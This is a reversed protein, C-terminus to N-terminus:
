GTEAVTPKTLRVFWLLGVLASAIGIIQADSLKWLVAPNVRWFEAIARELGQFLLFLACMAGDPRPKLRLKWLCAFIILAFGLEYLPTPHVRVGPPTPITGNPFSLAWPLESPPGYDGDGALLCGIRGLGYALAIAPTAADIMPLLPAGRRKLAWAVALVGGALGGYWVLGSGSFLASVWRDRVEDWKIVLYYLRAGVIGGIVAWLLVLNALESDLKRRDLERAYLGTAVLFAVALMLGYSYITIPGLNLIVPYM